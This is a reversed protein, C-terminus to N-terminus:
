LRGNYQAYFHRATIESPAMKSPVTERVVVSSVAPRSILAKYVQTAGGAEPWFQVQVGDEFVFTPVFRVPALAQTPARQPRLQGKFTRPCKWQLAEEPFEGDQVGKQIFRMWEDHRNVQYGGRVADDRLGVYYDRFLNQAEEKTKM